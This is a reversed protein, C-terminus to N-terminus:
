KNLEMKNFQQAWWINLKCNIKIRKGIEVEQSCAIVDEEKPIFM